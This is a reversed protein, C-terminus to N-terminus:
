GETKSLIEIIIDISNIIKECDKDNLPSLLESVKDNSKEVLKKVTEKCHKSPIINYLRGDTDSIKRKILGNKEFKSLIRSLYSKDIKLKETLQNAFCVKNEVIEFLIRAEILSYKSNLYIRNLLDLKPMYFRNFERIKNVTQEKQAQKM